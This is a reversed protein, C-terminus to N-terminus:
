VGAINNARRHHNFIFEVRAWSGYANGVAKFLRLLHVDRAAATAFTSEDLEHGSLRTATSGANAEINGNLGNNAATFGDTDNNDQAEFRANPDVYVAHETLVSAAGHNIAVGSIDTTGPTASTFPEIIAGSTADGAKQHVVDQRFIATAYAALKNFNEILPPGGHTTGIMRCGHPADTNAM